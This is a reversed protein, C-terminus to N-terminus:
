LLLIILLILITYHYENCFYFNKYINYKYSLKYKFSKINNIILMIIWIKYETNIKAKKKNNVM